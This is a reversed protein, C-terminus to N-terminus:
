LINRAGTFKKLCIQSLPSLKGPNANMKRSLSGGGVKNKGGKKKEKFKPWNNYEAIAFGLRVFNRTFIKPM